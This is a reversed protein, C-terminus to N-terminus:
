CFEERYTLSFWRHALYFHANQAEIVTALSSYQLRKGTFLYLIHHRSLSEVYLSQLIAIKLEIYPVKTALFGNTLV